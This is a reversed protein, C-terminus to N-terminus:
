ASEKHAYELASEYMTPEHVANRDGELDVPWDLGWDRRAADLLAHTEVVRPTRM